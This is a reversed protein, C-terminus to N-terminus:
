VKGEASGLPIIMVTRIILLLESSMENGYRDLLITWVLSPSSSTKSCMEQPHELIKQVLNYYEEAVERWNKTGFDVHLFEKARGFEQM